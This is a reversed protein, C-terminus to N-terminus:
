GSMLGAQGQPAALATTSPSCWGVQVDEGQSGACAEELQRLLAATKSAGAEAAASCSAAVSRVVEPPVAAASRLLAQLVAHQLGQQPHLGDM